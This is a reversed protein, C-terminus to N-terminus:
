IVDRDDAREAFYFYGLYIASMTLVLKDHGTAQPPFVVSFDDLQQMCAHGCGPTRKNIYGVANGSSDLIDFHCEQCPECPMKQCMYGYQCMSGKVQYKINDNGDKIDLQMTCCTWPSRVVGALEQGNAGNHLVKVEPRGCCYVTCNCGKDGLVFEQQTQDDRGHLKFPRCHAPFCQRACCSSEENIKFIEEGSKLGNIDAPFVRYKNQFDCSLCVQAMNLKQKIYVGYLSELLGISFPPAVYQQQQVVVQLQQMEMGPQPQYYGQQQM